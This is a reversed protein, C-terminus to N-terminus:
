SRERGPAEDQWGGPRWQRAPHSGHRSGAAIGALRVNVGRPPHRLGSPGGLRVLRVRLEGRQGHGAGDPRAQGVLEGIQLQVAVPEACGAVRISGVRDVREAPVQRSQPVIVLVLLLPALVIAEPFEVDGHAIEAGIGDLAEEVLHDLVGVGIRDFVHAQGRQLARARQETRLQHRCRCRIAPSSTAGPRSASRSSSSDAARCASASWAASARSVSMTSSDSARVPASSPVKRSSSDPRRRAM